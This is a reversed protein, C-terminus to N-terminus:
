EEVKEEATEETAEETNEVTEETATEEAVPAFDEEVAEVAAETEANAEEAAEPQAVTEEKKAVADTWYIAQKDLRLYSKGTTESGTELVFTNDEPCVEVVTGSILGITKVKNGPQVADLLDMTEKQKKQQARRNLVMLAIFIGFVVILMIYSGLEGSSSCGGVLNGM